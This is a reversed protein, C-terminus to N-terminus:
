SVSESSHYPLQIQKGFRCGQCHDLYEQGLVSGLLGRHLLVSLRSGCIHDLRHHWQYFSSTSSATVAPSALAVFLLCLWDLEWLRQSDHRRPGTGILHGMRHDQIYCFGADLIVHCDHDTIQGASMLQMTLDPVLSVGHVHFSNSCLTGQGAVSLPSSNTTHVICHSYSPRLDSLHTSHPTM